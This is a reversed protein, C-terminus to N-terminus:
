LLYLLARYGQPISDAPVSDKVCMRETGEGWQTLEARRVFCKVHTHTTDLISKLRRRVTSQKGSDGQCVLDTHVSTEGTM